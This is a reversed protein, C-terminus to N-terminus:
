TGSVLSSSQQEMERLRRETYLVDTPTDVGPHAVGVVAVGIRIGSELPRLQELKELRELVTPAMAVWRELADRACAYIGIHRLYPERLLDGADPKAARKYPIAARSFYLAQGTAARAVKVVSPDKWAELEEVPTACTGIEWGGGRVLEIAAALHREELLPEDGQINAIVPYDRYRRRAAVEAIRDTGSPHDSSTMEVPAGLDRCVRAVRDSDTAVVAHDLVQMSRVRRWVWEILPRGLIPFLPKNPLRTSALRAPVIGLVRAKM